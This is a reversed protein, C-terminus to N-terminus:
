ECFLGMYNMYCILNEVFGVWMEGLRGLGKVVIELIIMKFIVNFFFYNMLFYNFCLVDYYM